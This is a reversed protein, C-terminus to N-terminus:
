ESVGRLHDWSTRPTVGIVVRQGDQLRVDHEEALLQRRLKVPHHLRVLVDTVQEDDDSGREFHLGDGEDGTLVRLQGKM